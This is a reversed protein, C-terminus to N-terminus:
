DDTKLVTLTQGAQHQHDGPPFLVFANATTVGRLDPSGLWPVARVSWRPGEQWLLANAAAILFSIAYVGGLDAIQILGLWHHQSHGLYYWAFGSLLYSRAFELGVWVAPFTVVLPLTTRRELLRTLWLAVPFYAACYLALAAWAFGMGQDGYTMWSLIPWFFASGALYAYFYLTRPRVQSRALCLLPMLAFWALAGWAVPFYCLFLLGASVLPPVLVPVTLKHTPLTYNVTRAATKAPAALGRKTGPIHTAMTM